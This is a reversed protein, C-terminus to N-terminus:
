KHFLLLLFAFPKTNAIVAPQIQEAKEEGQANQFIFAM